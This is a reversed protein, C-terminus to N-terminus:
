GRRGRIRAARARRRAAVLFHGREAAREARKDVNDPDRELSDHLKRLVALLAPGDGLEVLEGVPPPLLLRLPLALDGLAAILELAEDSDLGDDLLDLLAARGLQEAEEVVELPIPRM